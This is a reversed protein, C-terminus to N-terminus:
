SLMVTNLYDMNMPLWDHIEYQRQERLEDNLGFYGVSFRILSLASVSLRHCAFSVFGVYARSMFTLSPCAVSVHCIPFACPIFLPYIPPM